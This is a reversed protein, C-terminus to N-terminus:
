IRERHPDTAVVVAAGDARLAGAMFECVGSTLASDREYFQVFHPTEFTRSWDFSGAQTVPSPRPRNRTVMREAVIRNLDNRSIRATRHGLRSAPLVGASIWRWISVRSVGLAEAAQSISYYPRQADEGAVVM